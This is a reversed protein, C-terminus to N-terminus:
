NLDDACSTVGLGLGLSFAVPAVYKLFNLKM